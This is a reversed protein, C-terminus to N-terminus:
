YLCIYCKQVSLGPDMSGLLVNKAVPFEVFKVTSVFM